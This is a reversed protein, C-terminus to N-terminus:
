WGGGAGVLEVLCLFFSCGKGRKEDGLFCFFRPNEFTSLLFSSEEFPLFLQFIKQQEQEGEPVTDTDKRRPKEERAM